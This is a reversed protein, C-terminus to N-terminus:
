SRGVFGVAVVVWSTRGGWRAGKWAVVLEGGLELGDVIVGLGRVVM